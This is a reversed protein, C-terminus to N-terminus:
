KLVIVAMRWDTVVAARGGNVVAGGPPVARPVYSVAAVRDAAVLDSVIKDRELDIRPDVTHTFSHRQSSFMLGTDHTAAVLWLATVDDKAGGAPWRWVRFHHRRLFTDAVKEYVDDPTRGGLVLESVPQADYGEGKAAKMFTVIDSHLTMPVARTWGAAALADRVRAASGIVAIGIIDSPANRERLAAHIPASTAISDANANSVIAAGREIRPPPKWETWRALTTTGTMVASLETGARLSVARHREAVEGEITAALVIAGIPHFFGLAAIAWDRKPRIMSPIPPGVIRGATDVSERADDVAVIRMSVAARVTDHAPDDIPVAISDLELGLWHRKGAFREKGGGTVRGSLVSGPPIISRGNATALPAIVLAHVEPHAHHHSRIRDVLRLHLTDGAVLQQCPLAAPAVILAVSACLWVRIRRDCGM